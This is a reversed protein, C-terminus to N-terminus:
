LIVKDQTETKLEEGCYPCYNMGQQKLLYHQYEAPQERKYTTSVILASVFFGLMWGIFAGLIAKIVIDKM